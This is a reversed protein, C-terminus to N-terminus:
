SVKVRNTEESNTNLQELLKKSNGLQDGLVRYYNRGFGWAITCIFEEGYGPNEAEIAQQMAEVLEETDIKYSEGGDSVTLFCMAILKKAIEIDDAGGSEFDNFLTAWNRPPRTRVEFVLPPDSCDFLDATTITRKGVYNLKM